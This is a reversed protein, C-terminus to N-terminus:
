AEDAKKVAVLIDGSSRTQIECLVRFGPLFEWEEINPDYQGDYLIEYVDNEVKRVKVPRFVDTGEGLLKVYITNTFLGM